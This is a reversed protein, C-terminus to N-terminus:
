LVNGEKSGAFPKLLSSHKDVSLKKLCNWYRGSLSPRFCAGSLCARNQHRAGSLLIVMLIIVTLRLLQIAVSLM